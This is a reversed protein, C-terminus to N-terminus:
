LNFGQERLTKKKERSNLSAVGRVESTGVKNVVVEAKRTKCQCPAHVQQNTNKVHSPDIRIRGNVVPGWRGSKLFFSKMRAEIAVSLVIPALAM